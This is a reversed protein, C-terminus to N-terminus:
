WSSSPRKLQNRSCFIDIKAGHCKEFKKPGAPFESGSAYQRQEAPWNGLWVGLWTTKPLGNLRWVDLLKQEAFQITQDMGLSFFGALRRDFNVNLPRLSCM